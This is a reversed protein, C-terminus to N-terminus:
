PVVEFQASTSRVWSGERSSPGFVDLFEAYVTYKGPKLKYFKNLDIKRTFNAGVEIIPGYGSDALDREGPQLRHTFQRQLLTTEAEGADNEVHVRERPFPIEKSTLNRVSLTLWAPTKEAVRVQPLAISVEINKSRSSMTEAELAGAADRKPVSAQGANNVASINLLLLAVVHAAFM